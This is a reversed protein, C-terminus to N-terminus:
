VARGYFVTEGKVLGNGASAVTWASYQGLWPALLDASWYYDSATSGFISNICSNIVCPYPALLISELEHPNCSCAGNEYCFDCGAESPPRWDSHGAFSAANVQNLWDWVTTIAGQGIPDVNCTGSACTSCEVTGGGAHATCTAAAAANPQ